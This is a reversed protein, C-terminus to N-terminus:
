TAGSGAGLSRLYAEFMDAMATAHREIEEATRAMASFHRGVETLTSEVLEAAVTRAAEPLEPLAERLLAGVPDEEDGADPPEPADGVQPAADVLARRLMAEECESRLFVHVLERLRETPSRSRDGLITRWREATRQWEDSQLRFLIAAKNPFYQYLSGVSIGAKEAVRATTFRAAGEADLIRVAAELITSVLFNSRSQTPSKRSQIQVKKRGAM